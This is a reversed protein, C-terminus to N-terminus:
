GNEKEERKTDQQKYMYNENQDYPNGFDIEREPGAQNFLEKEKPSFHKYLAGQPRIKRARACFLLDPNGEPLDKFSQEFIEINNPTIQETDLGWWFVDGCNVFIVVGNDPHYEFCESDKRFNLVDWSDSSCSVAKVARLILEDSTM